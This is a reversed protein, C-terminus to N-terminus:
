EARVEVPTEVLCQLLGIAAEVLKQGERAAIHASEARGRVSVSLGEPIDACGDFRHRGGLMRVARTRQLLCPGLKVTMHRSQHLDARRSIALDFASERLGASDIL